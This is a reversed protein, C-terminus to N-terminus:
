PMELKCIAEALLKQRICQLFIQWISMFSLLIFLCRVSLHPSFPSVWLCVCVSVTSHTIDLGMDRSKWTSSVSICIQDLIIFLKVKEGGLMKGYSVISFPEVDQLFTYVLYIIRHMKAGQVGEAKPRVFRDKGSREDVRMGGETGEKRERCGAEVCLSHCCRSWYNM